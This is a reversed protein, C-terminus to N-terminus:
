KTGEWWRGHGVKARRRKSKRIDMLVGGLDHQQDKTLPDPRTKKFAVEAKEDLAHVLEDMETPELIDTRPIIFNEEHGTEVEYVRYHDPGVWMGQQSM